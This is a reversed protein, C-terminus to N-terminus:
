MHQTPPTIRAANLPARIVCALGEPRWDLTLVGSMEREIANATMGLGFGQRAPARLDNLGTETWTLIVEGDSTVDWRVALRGAEVSLAGHSLTNAAMEHLAPAFPRVQAAELAVDPGDLSIRARMPGSLSAFEDEMLRRLAVPERRGQHNSARVLARIRASLKAKFLEVSPAATLTVLAGLTTILNNTRHEVEREARRRELAAPTVDALLHVVFDTASLFSLAHSLVLPEGAIDAGGVEVFGDAPSKAGRAIWPGLGDSGARRALTGAATNEFVVSGAADTVMVAAALAHLIDLAGVRDIPLESQAM